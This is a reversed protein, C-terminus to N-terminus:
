FLNPKTFLGDLHGNLFFDLMKQIEFLCLIIKNKKHKMNKM